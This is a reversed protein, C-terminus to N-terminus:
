SCSKTKSPKYQVDVNSCRFPTSLLHYISEHMSVERSNIFVNGIARLKNGVGAENVEKVAKRMLESMTHEPKCLYSTLYALVAYASTIYQINM